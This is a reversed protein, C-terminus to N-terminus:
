LLRQAREFQCLRSQAVDRHTTIASGGPQSLRAVLYYTHESGARDSDCQDFEAGRQSACWSIAGGRAGFNLTSVNNGSDAPSRSRRAESWAGSVLRMLYAVYFTGTQAAALQRYAVPQNVTGSIDV